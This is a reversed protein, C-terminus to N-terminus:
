PLTWGLEDPGVLAAGAAAILTAAVAGRRRQADAMPPAWIDVEGLAPAVAPDAAGGAVERQQGLPAEVAALGRGEALAFGEFRERRRCQRRYGAVTGVRDGPIEATSGWAGPPRSARARGGPARVGSAASCPQM